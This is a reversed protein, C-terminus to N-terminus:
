GKIALVDGEALLLYKEGEITLETGAYAGFLVCDGVRVALERVTGDPRIAGAGVSLVEGERPAEKANDPIIIGGRSKEAAEARRVLLKDHLPRFHM